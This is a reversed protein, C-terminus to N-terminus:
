RGSRRLGTPDLQRHGGLLVRDCDGPVFGNRLHDLPRRVAASRDRVSGVTGATRWLDRRLAPHRIRLRPNPLCRCVGEARDRRPDLV